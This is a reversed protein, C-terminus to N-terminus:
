EVFRAYGTKLSIKLHHEPHSVAMLIAQKQIM